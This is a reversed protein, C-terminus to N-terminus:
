RLTREAISDVTGRAVGDISEPGAAAPLPLHRRLGHHDGCRLSSRRRHDPNEATRRHHRHGGRGDGRDRSPQGQRGTGLRGLPGRGRRRRPPHPIRRGDAIPRRQPCLRIAPRSTPWSCNEQCTRRARTSPAPPSTVSPVASPKPPSSRQCRLPLSAPAPTPSCGLPTVAPKAFSTSSTFSYAATIYAAVTWGLHQTRGTRTLGTIILILGATAVVGALWLGPGSRVTSSIAITPEGFM